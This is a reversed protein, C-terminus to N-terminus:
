PNIAPPEPKAPLQLLREDVSTSYREARLPNGAGEVLLVAGQPSLCLTSGAGGIGPRPTTVLCRSDAGAVKKDIVKFTYNTRAAKLEAATRTIDAPALLGPLAEQQQAKQCGWKQNDLACDYTGDSTVFVSRTVPPAVVDVRRRPPDQILVVTTGNASKAYTVSFRNGAASAYRALFDQVDVSLGAGRALDRAQKERDHATKQAPSEHRGCATTVAALLLLVGLARVV